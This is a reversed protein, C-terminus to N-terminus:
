KEPRHLGYLFPCFCGTTDKNGTCIQRRQSEPLHSLRHCQGSKQWTLKLANNSYTLASLKPQAPRSDLTKTVTKRKSVKGNKVASVPM